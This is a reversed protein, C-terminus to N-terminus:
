VAIGKCSSAGRCAWLFRGAIPMSLFAAYKVMNGIDRALLGELVVWALFWKFWQMPVFFMIVFLVGMIININFPGLKLSNESLAWSANMTPTIPIQKLISNLGVPFSESLNSGTGEDKTLVLLPNVSYAALDYEQIWFQMQLDIHTHIPASKLKRAADNKLVYGYFGVSGSVSKIKDDVQEPTHGLVKNVVAPVFSDNECKFGCGLYLIDYDSPVQSWTARFRADFDDALIADDELILVAKYDKEIMEKWIRTHSLACGKMSDTCFTNCFSSFAPHSGVTVGLIAPFREYAIGYRRLQADIKELRETDKDLNIVYV